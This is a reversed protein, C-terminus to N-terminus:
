QGGKGAGAATLLRALDDPNPMPASPQVGGMPAPGGPPPAGGPAAGALGSLLAGGGMGPPGGMGPQGGALAAGPDAPMAPQGMAKVLGMVQAQIQALQEMDADPYTGAKALDQVIQVLTDRWSEGGDGAGGPAPKPPGSGAIGKPM